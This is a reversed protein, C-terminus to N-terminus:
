APYNERQKPEQANARVTEDQLRRRRFEVRTRIVVGMPAERRRMVERGCSASPGQRRCGTPGRSGFSRTDTAGSGAVKRVEPLCRDVRHWRRAPGNARACVGRARAVCKAGGHPRESRLGGCQRRSGLFDAARGSWRLGGIRVVKQGPFQFWGSEWPSDDLPGRRLPYKTAVVELSVPANRSPQSNEYLSGLPVQRYMAAPAWGHEGMFVNYVEAVDEIGADVFSLGKAWEVFGPADERRTLYGTIWYAVEGREAEFLNEASRRNRSGRLTAAATSGDPEM